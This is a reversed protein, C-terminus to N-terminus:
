DVEKAYCNCSSDAAIAAGCQFCNGREDGAPRSLELIEESTEIESKILEGDGRKVSECLRSLQFQLVENQKRLVHALPARGQGAIIIDPM